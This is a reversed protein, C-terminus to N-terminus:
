LLGEIAVKRYEDMRETFGPLELEMRAAVAGELEETSLADDTASSVMLHLYCHMLWYTIWDQFVEDDEVAVYCILREPCIGVRWRGHVPWPGLLGYKKHFDHIDVNPRLLVDATWSIEDFVVVIGIRSFDIEFARTVYDIREARNM